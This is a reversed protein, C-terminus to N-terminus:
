IKYYYYYYYHPQRFNDDTVNLIVKGKNTNKVLLNKFGNKQPKKIFEITTSILYSIGAQAPILTVM